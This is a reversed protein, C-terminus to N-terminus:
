ERFLEDTDSANDDETADLLAMALTSIVAFFVTQFTRRKLGNAVQGLYVKRLMGPTMRKAM